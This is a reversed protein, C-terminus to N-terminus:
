LASLCNNIYGLWEDKKQAPLQFFTDSMQDYFFGGYSSILVKRIKGDYQCTAVAGGMWTPRADAPLPDASRLFYVMSDSRLQYNKFLDLSDASISFQVAGKIKYLRWHSTQQWNIPSQSHCFALVTFALLVNKMKGTKQISIWPDGHYIHRRTYIVWRCYHGLLARGLPRGAEYRWHRFVPWLQWSLSLKSRRIYLRFRVQRDGAVSAFTYHVSSGSPLDDLERFFIRFAGSCLIRPESYPCLLDINCRTHGPELDFEAM